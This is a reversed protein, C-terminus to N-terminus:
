SLASRPRISPTAAAAGVKELLVRPDFYAVRLRTVKGAEVDWHESILIAENTGRVGIEIFAVVHGHEAVVSEYRMGSFNLVSAVRPLLEAYQERDFQGGWPLYGPLLLEFEDALHQKFSTVDGEGWKRYIATVLSRAQETDQM